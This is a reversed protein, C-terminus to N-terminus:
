PNVFTPPQGKLKLRLRIGLARFRQTVRFTWIGLRDRRAARQLTRTFETGGERYSPGQCTQDSNSRSLLRGDGRMPESCFDFLTRRPLSCGISANRGRWLRWLSVSCLAMAFSVRGPWPQSAAAEGCYLEGSHRLSVAVSAPVRTSVDVATRAQHGCEGLCRVSGRRPAGRLLWVTRATAAKHQKRPSFWFSCRRVDRRVAKPAGLDLPKGRRVRCYPRRSQAAGCREHFCTKRAVVVKAPEADDDSRSRLVHDGVGPGDLAYRAVNWITDSDAVRRKQRIKCKL